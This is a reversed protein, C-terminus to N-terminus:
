DTVKLSVVGAAIFGVAVYDHVHLTEKFYLVGVTTTAIVSLASWMANVIGLGKFSFSYMLLLGVVAYLAVGAAFWARGGGLCKKFCTMAATEVGVIALIALMLLPPLQSDAHKNGAAM